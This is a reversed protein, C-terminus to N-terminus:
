CPQFVPEDRIAALAEDLSLDRYVECWKGTHRMYALHFRDEAAYELRAFPAEFSPRLAAPYPCTYTACLYLFNRHWKTYLDSIYNFRPEEPPPQICRPRFTEVVREAEARVRAKVTEPVRPKPVSSPRYGWTKRPRM